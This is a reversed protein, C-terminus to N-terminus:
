RGVDVRLLVVLAQLVSFLLLSIFLVSTSVIFFTFLQFPFTFFFLGRVLMLAVSRWLFLLLQRKGLGISAIQKTFQSTFRTLPPDVLGEFDVLSRGFTIPFSGDLRNTRTILHDDLVDVTLRLRQDIEIVQFIVDFQGNQSPGVFEFQSMGNRVGDLSIRGTIYSNKHLSVDLTILLSAELKLVIM